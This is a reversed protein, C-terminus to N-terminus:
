LADLPLNPESIFWRFLIDIDTNEPKIQNRNMSRKVITKDSNIIDRYVSNEIALECLSQFATFKKHKDSDMFYHCSQIYSKRQPNLYPSLSYGSILLLKEFVQLSNEEHIGFNLHKVKQCINIWRTENYDDRWPKSRFFKLIQKKLQLIRERYHANFKCRFSSGDINFDFTPWVKKIEKLFEDFTNTKTVELAAVARSAGTDRLKTKLINDSAYFDRYFTDGNEFTLSSFGINEDEWFYEIRNDSIKPTWTKALFTIENEEISLSSLEKNFVLWNGRDLFAIDKHVQRINLCDDSFQESVIDSGEASIWILPWGKNKYLFKRKKITELKESRLQIEFVVDKGKYQAHIDPKGKLLRDESFIFRKDIDIIEWNDLEILTDRILAKMEKHLRGEKVGNYIAGKGLGGTKWECKLGTGPPHRFFYTHDHRSHDNRRAQLHVDEKCFYCAYKGERSNNRIVQIESQEFLSNISDSSILNSTDRDITLPIQFLTAEM